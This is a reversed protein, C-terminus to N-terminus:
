FKVIANLRLRSIFENDVGDAVNNLRHLYWTLNLVTNALPVYDFTVTHQQYNSPITTNDNSFAAFIADTDTQSYGYRIRWDNIKSAQGVFLDFMFGSDEDVEAGNNKVFDGVFRVPTGFGRYDIVAIFDLLDFDSLYAKGTSDLFNSRIDGGDANSLSNITYDYYGGALTLSFDSDAPKIAFQAQGGVMYSDRDTTQEDVISYAGIFKPTVQGGSVTYSAAVGQPNVDGDWVLDTRLFPNSFKGGALFLDQYKLELYLRDLSVELDNVFSGLTVDATNPDNSSGTALRAGFNLLGNIKKTVGARFRVVERQRVSNNLDPTSTVMQLNNTNEYRLRFDGSFKLASSEDTQGQIPFILLPLTFFLAWAYLLISRAYHCGRLLQRNTENIDKNM